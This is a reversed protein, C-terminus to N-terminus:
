PFQPASLGSPPDASTSPVAMPSQSDLHSMHANTQVELAQLQDALSQVEPAMVSLNHELKSLRREQAVLTCCIADERSLNSMALNCQYPQFLYLTSHITDRVTKM